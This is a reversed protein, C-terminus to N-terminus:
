VQRVAVGEIEQGTLAAQALQQLAWERDRPTRSRAMDLLAAIDETSPPGAASSQGVTTTTLDRRKKVAEKARRARGRTRLMARDFAPVAIGRHNRWLHEALWAQMVPDANEALKRLVNANLAHEGHAELFERGFRRVHADPSDCLALAREAVDLEENTAFWTRALDFPQPLGSEMLRLALPLDLGVARVRALGRERIAGSPHTAAALLAADSRELQSANADLWRVLYPEHAPTTGTLLDTIDAKPLRELTAAIQWDDLIRHSLAEDVGATIRELVRKWFTGLLAPNQLTQLLVTRAALWQDDTAALAREVQTAPSVRRLVAAFFAPSLSSFFAPAKEFAPELGTISFDAREFLQLAGESQAATAHMAPTFFASSSWVRWWLERAVDRTMATAALFQWGTANLDQDNGTVLPLSQDASPAAHAAAESFARLVMARLDPRLLAIERLHALEGLQASDHVRGLVWTRTAGHTDAFTALNRWLVDDSIRERFREVLLHAARRQKTRADKELAISLTQAAQESWVADHPARSVENLARRTRGGALLILRAWTAGDLREGSQELGALQQTALHQLLPLGSALFRELQARELRQSTGPEDRTRLIRLATENAELPVDRRALLERAFELHADWIEPAREERRKLVFAGGSRQYPGRGAQPQQWRVSNAFLVDMAAWNLAPVLPQDAHERLLQLALQLYLEANSQSLQRLIRRARRKMYQLTPTKPGAERLHIFKPDSVDVVFTTDRDAGGRWSPGCVIKLNGELLSVSRVEYIYSRADFDFAIVENAPASSQPTLGLASRLAGIIGGPAGSSSVVLRWGQYEWSRRGGVTYTFGNGRVTQTKGLATTAEVAKWRTTSHTFAASDIRNLLVGLLDVDPNGAHLAAEAKKLLQKFPKWAGYHLPTARAFTILEGREAVTCHPFKEVLSLIDAVSM